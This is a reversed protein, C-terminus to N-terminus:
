GFEFYTIELLVFVVISFFHEKLASTGTVFLREEQFKKINSQIFVFLFLGIVYCIEDKTDM